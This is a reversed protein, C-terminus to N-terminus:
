RNPLEAAPAGARAAAAAAKARRRDLTSELMWTQRADIGYVDERFQLIGDASTRATWYGLYVPLPTRLRVAREQGGHMATQIREPTWELQDGPVYAALAEPQEIRVCGHSFSRAARAFLSDAPADHLYVNFQNPFMFKVYGLSNNSGPRQRFRYDGPHDLDISSPNVVSGSRDLVEMNTKKLFAPDKMVSPITEKEAIGPPVNWYPAFV